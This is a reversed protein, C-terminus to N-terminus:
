HKTTKAWYFDDCNFRHIEDQVGRFVERNRVNLVTLLQPMSLLPILHVKGMISGALFSRQVGVVNHEELAEIIEPSERRSIERFSIAVGKADLIKLIVHRGSFETFLRVVEETCLYPSSQMNIVHVFKRAIEVKKVCLPRMSETKTETVSEVIVDEEDDSRFLEESDESVQDNDLNESEMVPTNLPVVEYQELGGSSDTSCVSESIKRTMEITRESEKESGSAVDVINMRSMQLNVSEKKTAPSPPSAAAAGRPPSSQVNSANIETEKNVVPPPTFLVSPNVMPMGLSNALAAFSNGYMLAPLVLSSLYANQLQMSVVPLTPAMMQNLFAPNMYPSAPPPIFCSPGPINQDQSPLNFTSPAPPVTPAPPAPTSAPVTTFGPPPRRSTPAVTEVEIRHQPAPAPASTKYDALGEHKLTDNIHIDEEGTTDVLAVELERYEHNASSVIAVLNKDSVLHLFRQSVLRPWRTAGNAPKINALSAKIAQIPFEAFDQHMFRLESKKVKSKTGYDVFCVQAETMSPLATIRARHLEDNFPAMCYQDIRVTAEPMKYDVEQDYFNQIDNMLKDLAVHTKEGRLQLWFHQPTYVEAVLVELYSGPGTDPPLKQQPITDKPGVVESPYLEIFLDMPETVHPLPADTKHQQQEEVHPYLMIRGMVYRMHLVEDNLFLLFSELSDFNLQEFNINQGFMEQYKDMFFDSWLGSSNLMLLREINNRIKSPVHPQTSRYVRPTTKMDCSQYKQPFPKRADLVKWDEGDQRIFHFIEPLNAVMQLVSIFGLERYDLEVKFCEKYLQPLESCRIGDPHKDLLAIFKNQMAKNVLMNNSQAPTSSRTTIDEGAAKNNHSSMEKPSTNITNSTNDYIDEEEEEEEINLDGNHVSQHEYGAPKMERTVAPRKWDGSANVDIQRLRPPVYTNNRHIPVYVGRGASYVIGNIVKVIHGLDELVEAVSCHLGYSHLIGPSITQELRSLPIGEPHQFVMSALREQFHYPILIKQKAVPHIANRRLASIRNCGRKPPNVKQKQVLADVHSSKESLVPTIIPSRSGFSSEVKVTDPISRLFDLLTTKGFKRYPIDHGEQTRFDRHLDDATM